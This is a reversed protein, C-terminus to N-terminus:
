VMFNIKDVFKEKRSSMEEERAIAAEVAEESPMPWAPPHM